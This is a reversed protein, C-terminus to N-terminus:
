GGLGVKVGTMGGSMRGQSLVTQQRGKKKKRNVAVERELKAKDVDPEDMSKLKKRAAMKKQFAAFKAAVGADKKVNREEKTETGMNTLTRKTTVTEASEYEPMGEITHKVGKFVEGPRYKKGRRETKTGLDKDTWGAEEMVFKEVEKREQKKDWQQKQHEKRDPNGSKSMWAPADKHYEAYLAPNKGQRIRKAIKPNTKAAELGLKKKLAQEKQAKDRKVLQQERHENRNTNGSPTFGTKKKLEKLKAQKMRKKVQQRRHEDRDAGM